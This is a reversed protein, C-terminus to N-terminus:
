VECFDSGIILPLETNQTSFHRSSNVTVWFLNIRFRCNYCPDMPNSGPVSQEESLGLKAKVYLFWFQRKESNYNNKKPVESNSSM